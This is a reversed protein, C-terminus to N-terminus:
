TTTDIITTWTKTKWYTLLWPTKKININEMKSVYNLWKQKHQALKKKVQDAKHEAIRCILLKTCLTTRNIKQWLLCRAVKISNEFVEPLKKPM